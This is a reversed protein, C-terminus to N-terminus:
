SVNNKREIKEQGRGNETSLKGTGIPWTLM